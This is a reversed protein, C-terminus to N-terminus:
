DLLRNMTCKTSNKDNFLLHTEMCLQAFRSMKTHFVLTPCIQGIGKRSTPVIDEIIIQEFKFSSTHIAQHKCDFSIDEIESTIEKISQIFYNNLVHAIDKDNEYKSNNVKITKIGDNSNDLSISNKLCKWMNKCNYKNEYIENEMYQVKKKKILKKYATENKEDVLKYKHSTM